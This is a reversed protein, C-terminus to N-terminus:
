ETDGLPPRENRMHLMHAPVSPHVEAQCCMTGDPETWEHVLVGYPTDLSRACAQEIAANRKDAYEDMMKSIAAAWENSM